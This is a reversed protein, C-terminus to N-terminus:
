EDGGDDEEHDYEDWYRDEADREDNHASCDLCESTGFSPCDICVPNM